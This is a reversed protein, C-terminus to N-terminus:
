QCGYNCIEDTCAGRMKKLYEYLQKTETENLMKLCQADFEDFLSSLRQYLAIGTESLSLIKVRQDEQHYTQLVYGLAQLRQICRTTHGKDMHLQESLLGMSCNPHKGIYIIFYFLGSSVHYSELIPACYRHFKRQLMLIQATISEM